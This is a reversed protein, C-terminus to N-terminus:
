VILCLDSASSYSYSLEDPATNAGDCVCLASSLSLYLHFVSHNLLQKLVM